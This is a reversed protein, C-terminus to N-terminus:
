GGDSRFEGRGFWWRFSSGVLPLRCLTPVGCMWWLYEADQCFVHMSPFQRVCLHALEFQRRIREIKQAWEGKPLPAYEIALVTPTDAFDDQQEMLPPVSPGIAREYWCTDPDFTNSKNCMEDYVVDADGKGIRDGGDGRAGNAGEAQEYEDSPPKCRRLLPTKVPTNPSPLRLAQLMMQYDEDTDAFIPIRFEFPYAKWDQETRVIDRMDMKVVKFDEEYEEGDEVVNEIGEWDRSGGRRSNGGGEREEDMSDGWVARTQMEFGGGAARIEMESGETVDSLMDEEGEDLSNLVLDFDEQEDLFFPHNTILQAGRTGSLCSAGLGAVVYVVTEALLVLLWIECYRRLLYRVQARVLSNLFSNFARAILALSNLASTNSTYTNTVDDV